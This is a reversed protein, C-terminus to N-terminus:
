RPLPTASRRGAQWRGYAALHWRQQFGAQALQWSAYAAQAGRNTADILANARDGDAPTLPVRAVLACLETGPGDLLAGVLEGFARTAELLTTDGQWGGLTALGRLEADLASRATARARECAGGSAGVALLFPQLAGLLADEAAVLRNHHQVALGAFFSGPLERGLPPIGPATFDPPLPPLELPPGPVLELGHAGLFRRQAEGAADDLAESEVRLRRYLADARDVVADDSEGGHAIAGLEVLPGDAAAVLWDAIAVCADRFGPDGPLAPVARTREGYRRYVDLMARRQVEFEDASAHLPARVLMQRVEVVLENQLKVLEANVRLATWSEGNATPAATPEGAAVSGPAALGAVVLLAATARRV